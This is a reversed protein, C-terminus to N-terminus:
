RHLPEPVKMLGAISSMLDSQGATSDEDDDNNKAAALDQKIAGLTQKFQNIRSLRESAALNGVEEDENAERVLKEADLQAQPLPYKASMIDKQRQMILKDAEDPNVGGAIMAKREAQLQDIMTDHDVTMGRRSEIRERIRQEEIAEAGTVRELEDQSLMRIEATTHKQPPQTRPKPIIEDIQSDHRSQRARQQAQQAQLRVDLADPGLPSAQNPFERALNAREAITLHQPQQHQQHRANIVSNLRADAAAKANTLKLQEVLQAKLQLTNTLQQSITTMMNASSMINDDLSQIMEELESPNSM